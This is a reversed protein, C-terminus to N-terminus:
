HSGEVTLIRGQREFTPGYGAMADRAQARGRGIGDLKARVHGHRPQDPGQSGRDDKRHPSAWLPSAYGPALVALIGHVRSATRTREGVLSDRQAVLAALDDHLGSPNIVPLDDERLTIRAIILADRDDSKGAKRDRRRERATLHPPVGVVRM